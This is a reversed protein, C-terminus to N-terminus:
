QKNHQASNVLLPVKKKMTHAHQMTHQITHQMNYVSYPPISYMWAVRLQGGGGLLGLKGVLMEQPRFQRNVSTPRVLM